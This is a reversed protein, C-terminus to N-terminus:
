AAANLKRKLKRQELQRDIRDYHCHLCLPSSRKGVYIINEPTKDRGCSRCQSHPYYRAGQKPGRKGM